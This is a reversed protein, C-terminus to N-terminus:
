VQLTNANANGNSIAIAIIDISIGNVISNPISIDSANFIINSLFVVSAAAGSSRPLPGQARRAWYPRPGPGFPWTATFIFIM